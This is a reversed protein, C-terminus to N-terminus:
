DICACNRNQQRNEILVQELPTLKDLDSWRWNRGLGIFGGPQVDYNEEIFCAAEYLEPHKEKLERVENQKRNPCFFCSSKPPVGLGITQILNICDQQNIGWEILPHEKRYYKDEFPNEKKNILRRLEGSHYGVLKRIKVVGLISKYKEEVYWNCPDIKYKISCEGRNFVRSPMGKLAICDEYLTSYSLFQNGNSLLGLWLSFVFWELNVKNVEWKYILKKRPKLAETTGRRVTTIEPFGQSVLWRSFTEVWEYTEPLEAGTDAFLILDPKINKYVMAILMATSNTGGGFSVVIPSNSDPAERNKIYELPNKWDLKKEAQYEESGFLSLQKM